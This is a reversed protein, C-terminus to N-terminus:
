STMADFLLVHGHRGRRPETRTSSTCTRSCRLSISCPRYRTRRNPSGPWRNSKYRTSRSSPRPWCPAPIKLRCLILWVLWAATAHFLVNVLHYGLTHDGWLQYEFWFASHLLPYYQQTAGLEFWIRYLGEASRLEPKTIHGDDDWITGGELAPLYVAVTVVILLGLVALPQWRLSSFAAGPPHPVPEFANESASM